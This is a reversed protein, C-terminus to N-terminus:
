IIVIGAYDAYYTLAMENCELVSSVRAYEEHYTVHETTAGGNTAKEKMMESMHQM